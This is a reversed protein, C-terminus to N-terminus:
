EKGEVTKVTARETCDLGAAWTTMAAARKRQYLWTKSGARWQSRTWLVVVRPDVREQVSVAPLLRWWHCSRDAVFRPYCNQRPPLSASKVLAVCRGAPGCVACSRSARGHPRRRHSQQTPSDDEFEQEVM